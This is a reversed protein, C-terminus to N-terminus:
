VAANEEEEAKESRTFYALAGNGICLLAFLISWKDFVTMPATLDQTFLFIVISAIMPILGFFKSAKPRNEDEKGANEAAARVAGDEDEDEKKKLFYSIGMIMGVISTLITAILDFLSWSSTM